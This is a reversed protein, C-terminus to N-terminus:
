RAIQLGREGRRLPELEAADGDVLGRGEAGVLHRVAADLVRAVRAFPGGVGHALERLIAEDHDLRQSEARTTRTGSRRRSSRGLRGVAGGRRGGPAAGAGGRALEPALAAREQPQALLLQAVEAPERELHVPAVAEALVQQELAAGLQDPEFRADVLEVDQEAGRMARGPTGFVARQSQPAGSSQPERKQAVQPRGTASAGAFARHAVRSLGRQGRQLAATCGPWSYQRSHPPRSTWSGAPGTARADVLTASRCAQAPAQSTGASSPSTIATSPM